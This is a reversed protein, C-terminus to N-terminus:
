DTRKMIKRIQDEDGREEECGRHEVADGIEIGLGTRAERELGALSDTLWKEATEKAKKITQAEIKWFYGHLSFHIDWERYQVDTANCGDCKDKM